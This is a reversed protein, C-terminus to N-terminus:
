LVYPTSAYVSIGYAACTPKEKWIIKVWIIDNKELYNQGFDYSYNEQSITSRGTPNVGKNHGLQSTGNHKPRNKLAATNSARNRWPIYKLGEIQIVGVKRPDIRDTLAYKKHSTIHYIMLTDSLVKLAHRLSFKPPKYCCICLTYLRTLNRTKHYM